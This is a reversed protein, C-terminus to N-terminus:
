IIRDALKEAIYGMESRKGKDRDGGCGFVVSLQATCHLRLTSLVKNLADPTHAYDVVVLPKGTDGTFCEMRGIVPKIDKIALLCESLERGSELLVALVALINQLNFDGLL